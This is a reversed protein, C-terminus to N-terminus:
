ALIEGGAVKGLIKIFDVSQRFMMGGLLYCEDASGRKVFRGKEDRGTRRWERLIISGCTGDPEITHFAVADGNRLEANPDVVAGILLRKPAPLTPRRFPVVNTTLSSNTVPVERFPQPPLDHRDPHPIRGAAARM